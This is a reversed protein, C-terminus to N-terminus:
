FPVDEDGQAETNTNAQAKDGGIFEFRECIVSVRSSTKGDKNQWTEFDLKGEVLIPKGKSFYKDITEASRNFAKCTIFVAKDKDKSRENIAVSFECITTGNQTQRLEPDRTLNGTIVVRNM